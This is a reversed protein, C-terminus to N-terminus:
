RRATLSVSVGRPPPGSRGTALTPAQGALLARLHATVSLGNPFGVEQSFRQIGDALAAVRKRDFVPLADGDRRLITKGRQVVEDMRTVKLLGTNNTPDIELVAAFTLGAIPEENDNEYVDLRFQTWDDDLIVIALGAVAVPAPASALAPSGGRPASPAVVPAKVCGTLACLAALMPILRASCLM